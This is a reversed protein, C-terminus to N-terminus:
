TTLKEMLQQRSCMQRKWQYKAELFKFYVSTLLVAFLVQSFPSLSIYFTMMIWIVRAISSEQHAYTSVQHIIVVNCEFAYIEVFHCSLRCSFPQNFSITDDSASEGWLKCMSLLYFDYVAAIYCWGCYCYLKIQPPSRHSSFVWRVHRTFNEGSNIRFNCKGDDSSIRHTASTMSSWTGFFRAYFKLLTSFAHECSDAGVWWGSFVSFISWREM